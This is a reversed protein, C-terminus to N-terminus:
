RCFPVRARNGPQNCYDVLVDKPKYGAKNYYVLELGPYQAIYDGQGVMMEEVEANAFLKGRVDGIFQRAVQINAHLHHSLFQMPEGDPGLEDEDPSDTWTVYLINPYLLYVKDTFFDMTINVFGREGQNWLEIAVRQMIVHPAHLNEDFYDELWVPKLNEPYGEPVAPYDDAPEPEEPTVVHHIIPTSGDDSDGCASIAISIILLILITKMLKTTM